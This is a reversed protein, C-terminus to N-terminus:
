VRPKVMYALSTEFEQAQSGGEKRQGGLISPNCTHAVEGPKGRSGMRGGRFPTTSKRGPQLATTHDQSVAVEVKHTLAIRKGRDGSYSLNCAHVVM